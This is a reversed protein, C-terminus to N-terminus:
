NQWRVNKLNNKNTRRNSNKKLYYAVLKYCQNPEIAHFFSQAYVGCLGLRKINDVISKGLYALLQM